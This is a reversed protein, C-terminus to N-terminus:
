RVNDYVDISTDANLTDEGVVTVAQQRPGSSKAGIEREYAEFESTQEMFIQPSSINDISKPESALDYRAIENESGVQQWSRDRSDAAVIREEYLQLSDEGEAWQKASSQGKTRPYRSALATEYCEVPQEVACTVPKNTQSQATGFLELSPPPAPQRQHELTHRGSKLAPIDSNSPKESGIVSEWIDSHNPTRISLLSICITLLLAALIVGSQSSM